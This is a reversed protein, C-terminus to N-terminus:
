KFYNNLPKINREARDVYYNWNSDDFKKRGKYAIGM